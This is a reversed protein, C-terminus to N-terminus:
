AEAEPAVPGSEGAAVPGRGATLGARIVTDRSLVGVFRGGADIVPLRKVRHSTMLALARDLPDDEAATVLATKMVDAASMAHLTREHRLQAKGIGGGLSRRVYELLGKQRRALSELLDRDSILGVMRGEADVVAVRQSWADFQDLVDTLPSDPGVAPIDHLTFDGVLRRGSAELGPDASRGWEPAHRGLANLVDIRSLMGQLLGERGVVPLRKLGREIMIETAEELSRDAEVTIAPSTMVEGAFRPGSPLRRERQLRDYEAFLGVRLPMGARSLLDGQSIIGIVKGGEVVPVANFEHEALMHVVDHVSTRPDVSLPNSTMVHRVRLGRPLPRRGTRHLVVTSDRVAVVGDLVMESLAALVEDLETSPLVIEIKVPLDGSLEVARQSVIEGGEFAGAVARFVAVRAASKRNGILTLVADPLSLHHWREGERTFVEIVRYELGM